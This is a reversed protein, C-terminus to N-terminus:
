ATYGIMWTALANSAISLGSSTIALIAYKDTNHLFSQPTYRNEQLYFVFSPIYLAFSSTLFFGLTAALFRSPWVVVARWAALADTILFILGTDGMRGVILNVVLVFTGVSSHSYIKVVEPFPIQTNEILLHLEYLTGIINGACNITILVYTLLLAAVLLWHRRSRENTRRISYIAKGCLLCYAGYCTMEAIVGKVKREIDVGTTALEGMYAPSDLSSM